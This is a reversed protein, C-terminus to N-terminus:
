RPTLARGIAAEPLPILEFRHPVPQAATSQAKWLAQELRDMAEVAAQKHSLDEGELAAQVQRWRGFQVENREFTLQHVRRSQKQMPTELLALNIGRRLEERGFVGLQQGDIRLNYREAPLGTIRLLQQNLAEDFGYCRAALAIAADDRDVPFPLANDTQTWSIKKGISFNTVSTSEVVSVRRKVFDVTVASVIAPANWSKLLAAALVLHGGVGPHVGDGAIQRALGPDISQAKILADVLPTNLDAVTLGRRQGTKKVFEGYRILVSNYGGAFAPPHTIDDRPSPQMVTVRLGPMTRSLFDLIHEYGNTFANYRLDNFPEGWGDNMGLMLAFVTPHHNVVDRQLRVDIPGGRGGNARDGGWASNIFELRLKPFRTIAYTEVYNTYLRPETISDGYFIIRDGDHLYFRDQAACAACAMTITIAVLVLRCNM